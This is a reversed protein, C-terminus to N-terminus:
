QKNGEAKAIAKELQKEITKYHDIHEKPIFESFQGIIECLSVRVGKCAILLDPSASILQANATREKLDVINLAKAIVFGNCLIPTNNVEVDQKIIKWKGKTYM